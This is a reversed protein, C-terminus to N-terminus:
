IILSKKSAFPYFSTTQLITAFIPLSIFPCNILIKLSWIMTMTMIFEQELYAQCSKETSYIKKQLDHYFHIIAM